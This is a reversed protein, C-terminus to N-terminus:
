RILPEGGSSVVKRLATSLGTRQALGGAQWQVVPRTPLSSTSMDNIWAVAPDVLV